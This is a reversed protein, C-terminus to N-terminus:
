GIKLSGGIYVSAEIWLALIANIEVNHCNKIYFGVLLIPAGQSVNEFLIFFATWTGM